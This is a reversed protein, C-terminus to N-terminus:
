PCIEDFVAARKGWRAVSKGGRVAGDGDLLVPRGGAGVRPDPFLGGRRENGFTSIHPNGGGARGGRLSGPGVRWVGEECEDERKEKGNMSLFWKSKM